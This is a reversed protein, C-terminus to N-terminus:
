RKFHTDSRHRPANSVDTLSDQSREQQAHLAKPRGLIFEKAEHQSYEKKKEAKVAQHRNSKGSIFATCLLFSSFIQIELERAHSEPRTM